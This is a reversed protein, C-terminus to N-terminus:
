HPDTVVEASIFMAPRGFCAITGDALSLSVSLVAVGSSGRCLAVLNPVDLPFLTGLSDSEEV